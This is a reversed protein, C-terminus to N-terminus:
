LSRGHGKDPLGPQEELLTKRPQRGRREGSATNASSSTVQNDRTTTPLAPTAAGASSGLVQKM